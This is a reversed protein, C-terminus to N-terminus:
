VGDTQWRVYGTGAACKARIGKVTGVGSLDRGTINHEEGPAYTRPNTPVNSGDVPDIGDIHIQIPLPSDIGADSKAGVYMNAGGGVPPVCNKPEWITSWSSSLDLKEGNVASMTM